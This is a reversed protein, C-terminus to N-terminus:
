RVGYFHSRMADELELNENSPSNSSTVRQSKPTDSTVKSLKAIEAQLSENKKLVARLRADALKAYGAAVALEAKDEPSEAKMLNSVQERIAAYVKNAHEVQAVEAPNAPDKAVKDVLFEFRLEGNENKMQAISELHKQMRGENEAQKTSSEKKKTELVQKYKGKYEELYKEKKLLLNRAERAASMFEEALVDDQKKERITQASLSIDRSNKYDIANIADDNLGLSKLIARVEEHKENFPTEFKSIFDPDSHIDVMARYSKLEEIEKKLIEAEQSTSQGKEALASKLRTLESDKEAIAKKAQAHSERLVKWGEKDKPKSDDIKPKESESVKDKNETKIEAKPEEKPAESKDPSKKAEVPKSEAKPKSEPSDFLKSLDNELQEGRDPQPENPPPNIIEVKPADPM